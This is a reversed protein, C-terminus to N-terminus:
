RRPNGRKRLGDLGILMMSGGVCATGALAYALPTAALSAMVIGALAGLVIWRRLVRTTM